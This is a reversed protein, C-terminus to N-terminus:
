VQHVPHRLSDDVCLILVHSTNLLFNMDQINSALPIASVRSDSPHAIDCLPLFLSFFFAMKPREAMVFCFSFPITVQHGVRLYKLEELLVVGAVFIIGRWKRSLRFKPNEGFTSKIPLWIWVSRKCAVSERRRSRRVARRSHRRQVVFKDCSHPMPPDVGDGIYCVCKEAAVFIITNM